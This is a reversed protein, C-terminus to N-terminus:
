DLLAKIESLVTKKAQELDLKIRAGAARIHGGGGFKSAIRRVDFDKSSRLSLRILNPSLEELMFAVVVSKVMLLYYLFNEAEGRNSGTKLYMDTTLIYYAIKAEEVFHTQNLVERLLLFRSLPYNRFACVSLFEPDAGLRILKAALEFTEPPFSRFCFANTDTLLGVYFNAAAEKPCPLSLKEICRFIVECSSSAQPEVVNLTAFRTNDIHHDFNLDVPRNWSEFFLGPRKINSCDVTIIKTQPDPAVETPAKLISAGPLFAFHELLGEEIYADVKKGLNKLVLGLGIASGYADGDPRCHSLIVFSHNEKFFTGIASVDANNDLNINM